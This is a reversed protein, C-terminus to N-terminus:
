PVVLELSGIRCLFIWGLKRMAAQNLMFAARGTAELIM